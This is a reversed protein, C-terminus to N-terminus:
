HKLPIAFYSTKKLNANNHFNVWSVGFKGKGYWVTCQTHRLFSCFVFFLALGNKISCECLTFGRALHPLEFLSYHSARHSKTSRSPFSPVVLYRSGHAANPGPSFRLFSHSLSRYFKAPLILEILDWWRCPAPPPQLPFLRPVSFSLKAKSITFINRFLLINM